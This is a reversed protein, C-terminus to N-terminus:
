KKARLGQERGAPGETSMQALTVCFRENRYDRSSKKRLRTEPTLEQCVL